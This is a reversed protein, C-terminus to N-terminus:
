AFHALVERDSLSYVTGHPGRGAEGAQPGLHTTFLPYNLILQPIKTLAWLFGPFFALDLTLLAKAFHYPLWLIHQSLMLYDSINKWVFLFQNKYSVTKIFFKSYSKRIAGEEHYHDVLAQPDFLCIYGAKRARWALDIDEWYFPAFLPDLGGLELFKQRDFLGSGASVWFTQGFKPTLAFHNLFGKKFKAGGRGRIVVHNGEHSVDALALAFLKKQNKKINFYKIAHQLFNPRPSVDSNLLLILDGKSEKIGSAIAHAFGLNKPHSITKINPFKKKLFEVSDDTSGDDVVIIEANPCYSIVQPVNRALLPKGNFNPIIVSIQSAM